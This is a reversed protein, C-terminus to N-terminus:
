NKDVLYQLNQYKEKLKIHWQETSVDVKNQEQAAANSDQPQQQYANENDNNNTLENWKESVVMIIAQMTEQDHIFRSCYKELSKITKNFDQKYIASRVTKNQYVLLITM